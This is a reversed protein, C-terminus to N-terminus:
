HPQSERIVKPVANVEHPRQPTKGTKERSEIGAPRWKNGWLPSEASDKRIEPRSERTLRKTNTPGSTQQVCPYQLGVSSCCVPRSGTGDAQFASISGIVGTSCLFPVANCHGQGFQVGNTCGTHGAPSGGPCGCGNGLSHLRAAKVPRPKYSTSLLSFSPALNM